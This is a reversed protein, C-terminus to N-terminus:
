RNESSAVEKDPNAKERGLRVKDTSAKGALFAAAFIVALGIWYLIENMHYRRKTGPYYPIRALKGSMARPAVLMATPSLGVAVGYIFFLAM